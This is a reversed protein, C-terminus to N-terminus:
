RTTFRWMAPQRGAKTADQDARNGAIDRFGTSMVVRYRTGPRLPHLPEVRVIALARNYTVTAPIPRSSGIRFVKALSWLSAAGPTVPESFQARVARGRRVRSSGAAPSTRTVRPAVRDLVVTDFERDVNGLPDQLQVYVRQEGERDSLTWSSLAAFPQPPGLSGADNSIRMQTVPENSGLVLTVTRRSTRWNRGVLPRVIVSVNPGTNDVHVRITVETSRLLGTASTTFAHVTYSGDMLDSIVATWRGDSGALATAFGGLGAGDAIVPVRLGPEATGTVTVTHGTTRSGDAPGTITPPPPPTPDLGEFRLSWSTLHGVLGAQDGQVFLQWTGTFGLDATELSRLDTDAVPLGPEPDSWFGGPLYRGSTVSAFMYTTAETDFVVTVDDIASSGGINRKLDLTAGSPTRLVVDLDEARDYTLGTLTVDIDSVSHPFDVALTSPYPSSGGLAPDGIVIGDSQTFTAVDADAPATAFPATVLAAVLLGCTAVASTTRGRCTLPLRLHRMM